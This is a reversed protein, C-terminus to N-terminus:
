YRARPANAWTSVGSPLVKAAGAVGKRKNAVGAFAPPRAGRSPSALALSRAHAARIQEGAHPHHIQGHAPGPRERRPMQRVHAGVHDLHFVADAEVPPATPLRRLLPDVGAARFLVRREVHHVAVLAIERQIQGRRFAALQQLPEHRNGIHHHLVVGGAHQRLEAQAVRHQGFHIRRQDHDGHRREARVARPAAVAGVAGRHLLRGTQGVKGARRFMRGGHHMHREAVRDAPQVAGRGQQGREPRLVAGTKALVQVQRLRLAEKREADLANEGLRGGALRGGAKAVARGAVRRVADIGARSVVLPDGDHHRRFRLPPRERGVGADGAKAVQRIPQGPHIGQVARHGLEGAPLHGFQEAGLQLGGAHRRRMRCAAQFEGPIRM